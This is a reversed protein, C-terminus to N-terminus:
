RRPWGDTSLYSRDKDNLLHGAAAFATAALFLALVTGLLVRRRRPGYVTATGYSM